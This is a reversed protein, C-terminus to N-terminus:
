RAEGNPDDADLAPGWPAATLLARLTELPPDAHIPASEADRRRMRWSRNRAATLSHQHDTRCPACLTRQALLGPHLQRRTLGFLLKCAPCTPTAIITM